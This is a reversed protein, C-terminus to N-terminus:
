FAKMRNTSDKLVKETVEYFELGNQQRFKNVEAVVTYMIRLCKACQERSVEIFNDGPYRSEFYFDKLYSLDSENLSFDPVFENIATYIQRLNHSHLLHNVDVRILELVSKLMEEAVQQIQTVMPNYYTKHFDEELYLLDHYAVDYYNNKM